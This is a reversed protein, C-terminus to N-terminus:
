FVSKYYERLIDKDASLKESIKMKTQPKDYHGNSIKLRILDLKKESNNEFEASLTTTKKKNAQLERAQNSIYLQDGRAKQKKGLGQNTKKAAEHKDGILPSTNNASGIKM